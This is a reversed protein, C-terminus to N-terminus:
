KSLILSYNGYKKDKGSKHAFCVRSSSIFVRSGNEGSLFKQLSPMKDLEGMEAFYQKGNQDTLVPLMINFCYGHSEKIEKWEEIENIQIADCTAINKGQWKRKSTPAALTTEMKNVKEKANTQRKGLNQAHLSKM